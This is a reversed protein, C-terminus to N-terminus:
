VKTKKAAPFWWAGDQFQTHFAYRLRLLFYRLFKFFSTIDGVGASEDKWVQNSHTKTYREDM